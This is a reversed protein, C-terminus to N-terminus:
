KIWLIVLIETICIYHFDQMNKGGAGIRHWIPAFYCMYTYFLQWGCIVVKKNESCTQPWFDVM